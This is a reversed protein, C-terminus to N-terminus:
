LILWGGSRPSLVSPPPKQKDVQTYQCYCQFATCCHNPTSPHAEVNPTLGGLLSSVTDHLLVTRIPLVGAHDSPIHVSRERRRHTLRILSDLALELPLCVFTAPKSSIRAPVSPIETRAGSNEVNRAEVAAPLLATRPTFVRGQLKLAGPDSKIWLDSASRTEPQYMTPVLYSHTACPQAPLNM